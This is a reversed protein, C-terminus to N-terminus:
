ILFMFTIYTQMWNNKNGAQSKEIVSGRLLADVGGPKRLHDMDSFAERLPVQSSVLDGNEEKHVLRINEPILSHGFRFAAAAFPNTIRPDFEGSYDDSFGSSLPYLGFREM